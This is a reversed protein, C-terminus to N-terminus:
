EQDRMHPTTQATPTAYPNEDEQEHSSRPQQETQHNQVIPDRLQKVADAYDKIATCLAPIYEEAEKRARNKKGFIKRGALESISLPKETLDRLLQEGVDLNDKISEIRQDLILRKGFVKNCLFRIGEQHEELSIKKEMPNISTKPENSSGPQESPTKSRVSPAITEPKPVEISIQETDNMHLSTQTTPTAYLNESEQTTSTNQERDKARPPKSPAKKTHTSPDEPNETSLPITAAQ